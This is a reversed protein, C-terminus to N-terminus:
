NLKLTYNMSLKKRRLNLSLENTEAYLSQCPSTHYAGLCLRLAQNHIPDLVQLYSKRGSGYVVSGYDLKSRICSTYIRMLATYEAGCDTHAVVRLLNLAKLCKAKLYKLHPIFTLKSDFIIVLFKTEKVIQIPENNLYLLPDPHRKRQQSFHMCVTKSKSFKNLAMKMLGIKFKTSLFKNNYMYNYM